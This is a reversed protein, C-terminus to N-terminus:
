AVRARRYCVLAIAASLVIIAASPEPVNAGFNLNLGALSGGAATFADKWQRFDAFDVVGNRVLDGESRMSVSKRFNARIPEFDAINVIGNGDTDGLLAPPGFGNNTMLTTIQAPDLASDFVWLEDISGQFYHNTDRKSGIHGVPSGSPLIDVIADTSVVPNSQVGDVFMHMTQIDKQWTWAVHHWVGDAVNDITPDGVPLTFAVIDDNPNNSSRFQGRPRSAMNTDVNPLSFWYTFNNAAGGAIWTALVTNSRTTQTTNVWAAITFDGGTPGEIERIQPFEFFGHNAADAGPSNNFSASQGFQGPVSTIDVGAGAYVATANHLGTADAAADIRGGAGTTIASTDFSWHAIADQARTANPLIALLALGCAAQMLLKQRDNYKRTDSVPRTM